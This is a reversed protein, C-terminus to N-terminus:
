SEDNMTEVRMRMLAHTKDDAAPGAVTEIQAPGLQRGDAAFIGVGGIAAGSGREVMTLRAGAPHPAWQEGWVTMAALIPYLAMGKETLQYHVVRGDDPSTKRGLIGYDVLRGLRVTLVNSSIGLHRQFDQFRSMGCFANRLIVLSWWEGVQELTQAIPCNMEAFSGKSM